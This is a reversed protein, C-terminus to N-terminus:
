PRYLVLGVVLGLLVLGALELAVSRGSATGRLADAAAGWTYFALSMVAAIVATPLDLLIVGAGVQVVVLVQLMAQGVAEAGMASRREAARIALPLALGAVVILPTPWAQPGFIALLGATGAFLILTLMLLDGITQEGSSREIRLELYTVAWLLVVLIPVLLLSLGGPILRGFLTAAIGATAPIAYRALGLDPRAPGIVYVAIIGGLVLQAAIAVALWVPPAFWGATAVLAQAGALILAAPRDIRRIAAMRRRDGFMRHIM